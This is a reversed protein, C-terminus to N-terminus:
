KNEAPAAPKEGQSGQGIHGMFGVDPMLGFILVVALLLPFCVIIVFTKKEFKLHMFFAAVLGAKVLALAVLVVILISKEQQLYKALVLEIATLGALTCFIKMYPPHQHDQTM